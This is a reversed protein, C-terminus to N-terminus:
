EQVQQVQRLVPRRGLSEAQQRPDLADMQLRARWLHHDLASFVKSSVVSRYYAAWGRVIPILRALVTNVNAGRLCRM